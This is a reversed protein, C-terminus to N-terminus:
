FPLIKLIDSKSTTLISPPCALGFFLRVAQDSGGFKTAPLINMAFGCLKRKAVFEVINRSVSAVKGQGRHLTKFMAGFITKIKKSM